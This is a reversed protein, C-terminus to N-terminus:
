NITTFMIVSYFAFLVFTIEFFIRAIRSYIGKPAEDWLWQYMIGCSLGSVLSIPVVYRFDMTCGFPLSINFSIYSAMVILWLVAIFYKQEAKVRRSFVTFVLGVVSILSVIINLIFLVRPVLDNIDFSFEGFVAGKILYIWVNYDDNPHSYVSKVGEIFPFSFFRDGYGRDGCYIPETVPIKYVYNFPQDFLILNRIPYWLGLPFCILAFVILQYLISMDKKDRRFNQILVYLMVPGTFFALTGVSIKTMMGFGISLALIIVYKYCPKKYWRVTYLLTIYMFLISLADNNARSALLFFNPLVATILVATLVAKKGLELEKAISRTILLIACSSFCSIIKAAEYIDNGSYKLSGITRGFLAGLFHFFPPHYFIFNNSDPLSGNYLFNMYAIHGDIDHTRIGVATYLMYGIRMIIGIMIILSIIDECRTKKHYIFWLFVAFISVQMINEVIKVDTKNLIIFLLTISLALIIYEIAKISLIKDKM